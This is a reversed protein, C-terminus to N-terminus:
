RTGTKSRSAPWSWSHPRAASIASEIDSFIGPGLPQAPAASAASVDPIDMKSIIDQVLLRINNELEDM